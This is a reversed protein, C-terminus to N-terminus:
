ARALEEVRASVQQDAEAAAVMRKVSKATFKQRIAISELTIAGTM